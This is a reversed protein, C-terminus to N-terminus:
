APLACQQGDVERDIAKMTDIGFPHQVRRCERTALIWLDQPRQPIFLAPRYAQEDVTSVLTPLRDKAALGMIAKRNPITIQGSPLVILAEAKANRMRLFAPQIDAAQRLDVSILTLGIQPAAKAFHQAYIPHASDSADWLLAVRRLAPLAQKLLELAKLSTEFGHDWALGTLNGGPKNLSVVLGAKVPDVGTQFVIPITTTVAKAALAPRAGGSAVIM